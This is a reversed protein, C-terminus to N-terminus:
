ATEQIVTITNKFHICFYVLNIIENTKGQNFWSYM